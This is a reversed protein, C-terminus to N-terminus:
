QSSSGGPSGCTLSRVTKQQDVANGVNTTRGMARMEEGSTNKSWCRTGKIRLNTECM